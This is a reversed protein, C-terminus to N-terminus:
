QEQKEERTPKNEWEEPNKKKAKRRILAPLLDIVVVVNLAMNSTCCIAHSFIYLKQTEDKRSTLNFSPIISRSRSRALFFPISFIILHCM